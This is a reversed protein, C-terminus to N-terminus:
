AARRVPAVMPHLVCDLYHFLEEAFRTANFLLAHRRAVSPSFHARNKEFVTLGEALSDVTQEAFWV